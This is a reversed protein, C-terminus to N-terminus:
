RDGQGLADQYAQWLEDVTPCTDPCDPCTARHGIYKRYAQQSATYVANSAIRQLHGAGGSGDQWQWETSM